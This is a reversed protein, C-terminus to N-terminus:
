IGSALDSFMDSITTGIAAVAVICVVAILSLLLGYEVYSAGSPSHFLRRAM